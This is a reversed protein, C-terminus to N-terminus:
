NALTPKYAKRMMEEMHIKRADEDIPQPLLKLRLEDSTIKTVDFLSEKIPVKEGVEFVSPRKKWPSLGQVLEAAKEAKEKTDFQEFRGEGTDM